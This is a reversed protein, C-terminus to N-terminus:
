KPHKKEPSEFLKDIEENTLARLHGSSADSLGATLLMDEDPDLSLLDEVSLPM